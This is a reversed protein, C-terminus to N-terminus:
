DNMFLISLLRNSVNNDLAKKGELLITKMAEERNGRNIFIHNVLWSTWGM